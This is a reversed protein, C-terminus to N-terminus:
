QLSEVTFRKLFIEDLHYYIIDYKKKIKKDLYTKAETLLTPTIQELKIKFGKNVYLGKVFCDKQIEYTNEDLKIFEESQFDAATVGNILKIQGLHNTIVAWSYLPLAVDFPLPYKNINQTYNKLLEIDLISNKGSEEEPSSTAYCMLYGKDVPPIGTQEKDKIQHLRITCSINKRSIEKLKSLLEFYARRTSQTWDCDIQIENFPGLHNRNNIETILSYIHGTLQEIENPRIDVLTRNTIFVVPIYATKLVLSDIPNIKAKPQIYGNEKDVDFMRLYLKECGLKEVYSKETDSISYTSKWYYFHIHHDHHHRCGVLFLLCFLCSFLTPRIM